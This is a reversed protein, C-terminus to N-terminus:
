RELFDQLEKRKSECENLLSVTQTLKRVVAGFSNDELQDPKQCSVLAEAPPTREPPQVPDVQVPRITNCGALIAALAITLAIKM